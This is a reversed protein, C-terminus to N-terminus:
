PKRESRSHRRRMERSALIRTTLAVIACRLAKEIAYYAGAAGFMFGAMIALSLSSLVVDRGSAIMSVWRSAHISARLLVPFTSLLVMVTTCAAIVASVTSIKM